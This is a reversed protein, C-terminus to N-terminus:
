HGKSSTAASGARAGSASSGKDKAALPLKPLPLPPLGGTSNGNFGLGAAQCAAQSPGLNLISTAVATLFPGLQPPPNFFMAIQKCSFQLFLPRFDGNADQVSFLTRANHDLWALWWLYGHQGGGPYYGLLNFLHNLVQFTGSLNPTASALNQSVPLLSRV